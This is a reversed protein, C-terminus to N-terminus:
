LDLWHIETTEKVFQFLDDFEFCLVHMNQRSSFNMSVTINMSITPGNELAWKESQTNHNGKSLMSLM